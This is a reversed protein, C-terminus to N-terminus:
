KAPVVITRSGNVYTYIAQARIRKPSGVVIFKCYAAAAKTSVYSATDGAPFYFQQTADVVSGSYDRVEITMLVPTRGANLADCLMQEGAFSAQAPATFLAAAEARGGLALGAVALALGIKWRKM